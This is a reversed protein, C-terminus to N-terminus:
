TRGGIVRTMDPWGRMSRVDRYGSRVLRSRVERARDPSVEVLLWGGRRLWDPSEEATRALLGM